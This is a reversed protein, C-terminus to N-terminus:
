ASRGHEELEHVIALVDQRRERFWAAQSEHFDIGREILRVGESLQAVPGGATPAAELMLTLRRVVDQRAAQTQTAAEALRAVEWAATEWDEPTLEASTWTGWRDQLDVDLSATAALLVPTVTAAGPLTIRSM